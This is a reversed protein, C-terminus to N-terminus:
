LTWWRPTIRVETISGEWSIGTEGTPLQPFDTLSIYSNLNVAEYFADMAQCDIDVYRYPTQAITIAEPGVRLTGYGYVRIHPQAAYQTPNTLTGATTLTVIDLGTLLYRQPQCDFVLDFRGSRNLTGPEPDIGEALRGLRYESPHYSDRILQYGGNYALMAARFADFRDPFKRSIFCPYTVEINSWRGNDLLLDGSKGPVQVVEVDRSPAGFTGSGSVWVYYDSTLVDGFRLWAGYQKIDM